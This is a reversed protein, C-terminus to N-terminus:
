AYGSSWFNREEGWNWNKKTYLGYFFKLPEDPRKLHKPKNETKNKIGYIGASALIEYVRSRGITITRGFTKMQSNFWHAIRRVGPIARNMQEKLIDLKKSSLSREDKIMDSEFESQLTKIQGREELAKNIIIEIDEQELKNFPNKTNSPKDKLGGKKEKSYRKILDYFANESMGYREWIDRDTFKKSEWEMIIRKRFEEVVEPPFYLHIHEWRYVSITM